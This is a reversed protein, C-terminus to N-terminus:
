LAREYCAVTGRATAEWTFDNARLRGASRLRRALDGDTLFRDIATQLSEESGPEVTLCAGAALETLSSSTSTVVPVGCAMAELVPLGFGEYASPYALLDACNYWLPLEDHGVYDALYVDKELGLDTVLRLIPEYMWGRGGILILRHPWGSRRGRAFARILVDINKRPELTGVHVIYPREGSRRQRFSELEHDARPRFSPDVGPYVVDIRTADVGLLSVLDDRTNRSVAMVRAARRVSSSVAARLYLAKSTSFREPHRMFSLDHVTVVSPALRAIPLVNVLGHLLDLRRAGTQWILGSQEWLIRVPARWTPLPSLVSSVGDPSPADRGHFAIYDVQPDVLPLAALLNRGYVSV